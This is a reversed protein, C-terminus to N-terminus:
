ENDEGITANNVIEFGDSALENVTTMPPEKEEVIIGLQEFIDLAADDDSKEKIELGSKISNLM